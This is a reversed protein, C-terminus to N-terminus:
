CKRLPRAAFDDELEGVAKENPDIAWVNMEGRTAKNKCDYGNGLKKYGNM